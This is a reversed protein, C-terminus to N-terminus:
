VTMFDEAYTFFGEICCVSYLPRINRPVVKIIDDTEPSVDRRDKVRIFRSDRSFQIYNM